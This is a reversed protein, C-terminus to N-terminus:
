GCAKKYPVAHVYQRWQQESIVPVMACLRSQVKGVDLVTFDLEPQIGWPHGITQYVVTDSDTFEVYDFRAGSSQSVEPIQFRQAPSRVKSM